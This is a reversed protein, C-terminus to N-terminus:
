FGGQSIVRNSKWFFSGIRGSNNRIRWRKGELMSYRKWICTKLLLIISICIFCRQGKKRKWCRIIRMYPKYHWSNWIQPLLVMRRWHIWIWLNGMKMIRVWKWKGCGSMFLIQKRIVGTMSVIMQLDCWLCSRIGLRSIIM